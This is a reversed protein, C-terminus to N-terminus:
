MHFQLYADLIGKGQIKEIVDVITNVPKTGEVENKRIRRMRHAQEASNALSLFQAFSRAVLKADTHSLRQIETVMQDFAERDGKRSCKALKRINEVIEYVSGFQGSSIISIM